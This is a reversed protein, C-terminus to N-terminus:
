KKDMLISIGIPAKPNDIVLRLRNYVDVEAIREEYIKEGDHLQIKAASSSPMQIVIDSKGFGAAAFSLSNKSFQLGKIEWNSEIVYPQKASEYDELKDVPRLKLLVKKKDADLAIYLSGQYYTQGIVGDSKDFDVTRLTAEDIRITRLQARNEISWYEHGLKRFKVEFFSDAMAAYESALIPFVNQKRAFELNEKVATLAADKEGSYTHFYLNYPAVRIPSETNNVTTQLYKFGFFRDTWLNTYTNENSNSSYIQRQQGIPASLPAVTAYSPYETDFRSDGGNINRLGLKRTQAIAAEFPTTNGSWQYLKVKKGGLLKEIYDISGRVERDLNFPECAYSRPTKYKKLIVEPSNSPDRIGRLIEEGSQLVPEYKQDIQIKLEEDGLIMESLFFREGPQNPFFEKFAEEKHIDGDAYFGWYLPHSYTHSGPEVNYLEMIKKAVPLSDPVGYCDPRIESVILGVTFGFDDYPKFVEEYLVESSLIKKNKYKEVETLNNWGDGDLHSYFVRKGYLTTVDPKPLYADEFVQKAFLFPNIFWQSLVLEEKEENYLQFVGYGQAVYGGNSNTIILDASPNKYQRAYLRLHTKADSGVVSTALYPTIEGQFEREFNTIEPTAKVIKVSHVINVWDNHDHVGIRHMLKNLKKVNADDERFKESVGIGGMVLLKKGSDIAEHMWDMMPTPEDISTDTLFWTVIGRVSDDLKPLPKRIDHYKVIFGLHNLPMELFQHIKTYRPDGEFESDYLAIIHRPLEEGVAFDAVKATSSLPLVLLVFICLLYRIM